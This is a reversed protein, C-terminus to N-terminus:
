PRQPRDPIEDSPAAFAASDNETDSQVSAAEPRVSDSPIAASVPEGAQMAIASPGTREPADQPVVRRAFLLADDTEADLRRQLEETMQRFRDRRRSVVALMVTGVGWLLLVLIGYRGRVAAPLQRLYVAATELQRGGLLLCFALALHLAGSLPILLTWLGKEWFFGLLGLLAGGLLALLLWLPASLGSQVSTRSPFIRGVAWVICSGVLVGAVVTGVRYLLVCVLGVALCVAAAALLFGGPVPTGVAGRRRLVWIRGAAFAAATWLAGLVGRSVPRSVGALLCLWLAATLWLVDMWLFPTM